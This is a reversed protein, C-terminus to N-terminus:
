YKLWNHYQFHYVLITTINGLNMKISSQVKFVLWTIDTSSVDIVLKEIEIEVIKTESPQISPGVSVVVSSQESPEPDSVPDELISQLSSGVLSPIISFHYSDEQAFDEGFDESTGIVSKELEHEPQVNPKKKFWIVISVIGAILIIVIVVIGITSIGDGTAEKSEGNTCKQICENTGAETTFGTTICDDITFLNEHVCDECQGNNDNDSNCM